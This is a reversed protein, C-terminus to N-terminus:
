RLRRAGAAPRGPLVGPPRWGREAFAATVAAAVADARESPVLAIASGGFGGGTMRAGLAGTEVAVACAVDLEEAILMPLMTKVGQGVDPSKALITVQGNPAVTVYANLARAGEVALIFAETLERSSVKKAAVADRAEGLTLETLDSM